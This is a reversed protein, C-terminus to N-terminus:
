GPYNITMNLDVVLYLVIEKGAHTFVIHLIQSNSKSIVIDLCIRFSIVYFFSDFPDNAM